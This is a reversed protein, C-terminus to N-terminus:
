THTMSQMRWVGMNGTFRLWVLRWFKVLGKSLRIGNRERAQTNVEMNKFRGSILSVNAKNKTKHRHRWLATTLRGNMLLSSDVHRGQKGLAEQRRGAGRWGNGTETSLRWCVVWKKERGIMTLRYCIQTNEVERVQWSSLALSLPFYVNKSLDLTFLIRRTKQLQDSHSDSLVRDEVAFYQFRPNLNREIVSIQLYENNCFDSKSKLPVSEQNMDASSCSIRHHFQFRLYCIIKKKKNQKKYSNM